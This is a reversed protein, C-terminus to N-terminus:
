LHQKWVVVDLRGQKHSRIFLSNGAGRRDQSPPISRNTRFREKSLCEHCQQFAHICSANESNGTHAQPINAHGTENGKKCLLHSNHHHKVGNSLATPFLVSFRSSYSSTESGAPKLQMGSGYASSMRSTNSTLCRAENM